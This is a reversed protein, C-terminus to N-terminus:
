WRKGTIANRTEFRMREASPFGFLVPINWNRFLHYLNCFRRIECFDSKEMFWLLIHPMIKVDMDLLPQLDFPEGDFHIHMIKKRVAPFVSGHRNFELFKKLQYSVESLDRSTQALEVFNVGINNLKHNSIHTRNISTKNCILKLMHNWGVSTIGDNRDLNLGELM